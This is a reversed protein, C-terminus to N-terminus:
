KEIYEVNWKFPDFIVLLTKKRIYYYYIYKSM